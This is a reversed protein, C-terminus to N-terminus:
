QSLGDRSSRACDDAHVRQRDALAQVFQLSERLRRRVEENRTDRLAERLLRELESLTDDTM